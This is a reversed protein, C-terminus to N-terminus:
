VSLRIILVIVGVLFLTTFISKNHRALWNPLYIDFNDKDSDTYKRAMLTFPCTWKYVILIIGEVFIIGVALWTFSNITGALGAYNVYLILSVFFVWAATHLIKILILKTTDAMFLQFSQVIVFNNYYKIKCAFVSGIHHIKFFHSFCRLKSNCRIILRILGMKGNRRRFFPNPKSILFNKRTLTYSHWSRHNTKTQIEAFIKIIEPRKFIM